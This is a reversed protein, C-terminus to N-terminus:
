RTRRISAARFASPSGRRHGHEHPAQGTGTGPYQVGRRMARRAARRRVPRVPLARSHRRLDRADAPPAFEFRVTRMARLRDRADTAADRFSTMRMRDQRLRDLDVDAVIMQEDASFRESEALLEGNECIMAHGDWALDTTSEGFGAGCYVYAALCRASQMACLARRYEAKGVTANSASLNTLVTAGALAAYSSPPVPVWLDECLEVHLVFGTLPTAAFLLDSGFPARQGALEIEGTLADRAAAFHRKEYFERYNPLYAKPVVGLVRGRHMVVACNFLQAGDAVPAGVILVPNLAESATVLRALSQRVADLLADQHFLDDATYAALGLEPFLAIAAGETEARRALHLTREANWAPLAVRVQPTCAAIRLFGHTYPSGSPATHDM